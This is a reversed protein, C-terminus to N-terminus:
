KVNGNKLVSQRELSRSMIPRHLRMFVTKGDALAVDRM